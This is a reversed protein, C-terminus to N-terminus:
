ECVLIYGPETPAIAKETYKTEILLHTFLFIIIKSQELVYSLGLGVYYLTDHVVNKNLM